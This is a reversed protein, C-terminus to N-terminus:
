FGWDTPDFAPLNAPDFVSAPIATEPRSRSVFTITTTSEDILDEAVMVDPTLRGDFESLSAATLRSSQNGLDNYAEMKLLTYFETDIWMVVRVDDVEVGPKATTELVYATRTMDGVTIDEERLLVADYDERTDEGGVDSFSLSSGAFSGGQDEETVLEKTIGLASLYLFFRSTTEGDEEEDMTLFITGSEFEPEAFYMLQKGQDGLSYLVYDNSTGDSYANEFRVTAVMGGQALLDGEADVADLVEDATIASAAWGMVGVALVACAFGMRRTM